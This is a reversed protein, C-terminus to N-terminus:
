EEAKKTYFSWDFLNLLKRNADWLPKYDKEIYVRALRLKSDSHNLMEDVRAIDINLKNACISAMTHRAYYYTLDPVGIAAGIKDLGANIARNFDKENKYRDSFMFAKNKGRYKRVIGRIEPEIFVEMRANDNRRDRTKKRNYALIDGELSDLDYLDASNVGMMAFSMLFLDKALDAMTNGSPTYPYDIIMQVQEITLTRHKTPQPIPIEYRSFPSTPINIISNDEDNYEKKAMEHLAKIHRLYISITQERRKEDFVVIKGHIYRQISDDRLFSEFSRILKITVESIDMSDRGIFRKFTNLSTNYLKGTSHKGKAILGDAVKKWYAMFDLRFSATDSDLFSMLREITWSDIDMGASAIKKRYGMITSDVSDLIAQNKIKLEEKGNKKRKSLDHSFAYYPTRLYRVKRNHTVRIKVNYSGDDKKQHPLILAKFTAM